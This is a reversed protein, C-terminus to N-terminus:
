QYVSEEVQWNRPSPIEEDRSGEVRIANSQSINQGSLQVPIKVGDKEISEM